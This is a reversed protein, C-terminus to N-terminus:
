KKMVSVTFNPSPNQQNAAASATGLVNVDAKDGPAAEAAATLEVEAQAQGMPIEAKAATVNAPLNRFELAIPGQYGGKRVASVKVKAKEGATLKVPAPDVKLDFPLAVVLPVPVAEVTFDKNQFKAKGTFTIPFSGVAANAAVNLQAKVESQGKPVNKLAPAVNAPLGAATVAIEEDFGPARTATITVAAPGGRLSEPLDFKAALSFPPKETVAFGVAALLPRPPYPLGALGTKVAAQVSVPEVVEKGNITAKGQLRLTQPGLPVDPNLNVVLTAAPQAPAPPAPAPAAGAPITAQGTIGPQGVVSVEIPGTYDRRAALILPISVRGGPPAQYRDLFLAVGFGPEYPTVTVHYSEAPGSAYLLNEVHLYFDGDAPPTFDLRPAAMPNSVALQAGKADRIAMYVETPSGLEESDAEITLRQGKKAAFVFEDVDGKQEFRATLGGPVPIRNAKAPEDNPEQEVVEDHDTVALTVPWGSLGSSGRPAVAVSDVAPDTPVTVEVPAVGDVYTGAFRVSVKSGRKAAMPISTTACPFDGIRLRYGYDPGGRYMVDRVAVLYDGAEKFTYTLRPDTQCGPADNNHGGPLERGTRADILTLEPDLPSGLRRGLVEFSLRQGAAATLKFYDTVEPDARGVVVCPATVPQATAPAHNTEVELVQPLDDVCFLRVNSMGSKTALRLAHLGLPADKPVDLQVRLKTPEKGNNNDAPITVKAPFSTWLATPEALNTGTLTLDLTTGRQVGFPTPPALVPAQPQPQSLPSPAQAPAPAALGLAAFLAPLVARLLRRRSM